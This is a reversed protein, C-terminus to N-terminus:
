FKFAGHDIASVPFTYLLYKFVQQYLSSAEFSYLNGAGVAPIVSLM